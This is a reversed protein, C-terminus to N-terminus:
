RLNSPRTSMQCCTPQTSRPVTFGLLIGEGYTPCGRDRAQERNMPSGRPGARGMALPKTPFPSRREMRELGGPTITQRRELLDLNMDRCIGPTDRSSIHHILGLSYRSTRPIKSKPFDVSLLAVM